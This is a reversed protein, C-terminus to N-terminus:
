QTIISSLESAHSTGGNALTVKLESQARIAWSWQHVQLGRILEENEFGRDALLIVQCNPPLVALTMELVCRYDKYGVSASGHEM